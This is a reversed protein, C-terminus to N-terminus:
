QNNGIHIHTTNEGIDRKQKITTSHGIYGKLKISLAYSIEEPIRKRGSMMSKERMQIVVQILQSTKVYQIRIPLKGATNQTEIYARSSLKRYELKLRM